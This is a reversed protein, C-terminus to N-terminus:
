FTLYTENIKDDPSKKKKNYRFEQKLEQLENLYDMDTNAHKNM